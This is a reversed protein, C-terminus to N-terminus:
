PNPKNKVQECLACKCDSSDGQEEESEPAEDPAMVLLGAMLISYCTNYLIMVSEYDPYVLPGEPLEGPSDRGSTTPTVSTANSSTCKGSPSGEKSPFHNGGARRAVSGMSWLDSFVFSCLSPSRRTSPMGKQVKNGAEKTFENHHLRPSYRTLVVRKKRKPTATTATAPQSNTRPDGKRQIDQLLLPKDRQFNSSRYFMMKKKGACCGSLCIKRFGYLNLERIFSKISDTEFIQDVGRRQLIETQFLDAEIVVTDGKDNWHASTFTADEVIRWLKRPFSLGFVANEENKAMEPNPGQPPLNDHLGADPSEPQDGQKELAKGSDVNPYLSSDHPDEEAPEGDTSPALLVAQAKHFTQSTM